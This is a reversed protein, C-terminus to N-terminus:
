QNECGTKEETLSKTKEELVTLEKLTKIMLPLAVALAVLDAIPQVLYIGTVGLFQLVYLLPIYAAGQRILALASAGVVKSLNQLTMNTMVIFPM